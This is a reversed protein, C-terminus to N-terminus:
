ASEKMRRDFTKQFVNTEQGEFAAIIGLADQFLLKFDADPNIKGMLESLKEEAARINNQVLTYSDLRMLRGLRLENFRAVCDAKQATAENKTILRKSYRENIGSLEYYAMKEEPASHEPLRKNEMVLKYIENFELM